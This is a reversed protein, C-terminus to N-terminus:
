NRPEPVEGQAVNQRDADDDTEQNRRPAPLRGLRSRRHHRPSAQERERGSGCGGRPVCRDETEVEDEAGEDRENWEMELLFESVSGQCIPLACTQVGTVLPDR